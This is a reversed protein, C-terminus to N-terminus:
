TSDGRAIHMDFFLCIHGFEGNTMIDDSGFSVASTSYCYINVSHQLYELNIDPYRKTQKLFNREFTVLRVM